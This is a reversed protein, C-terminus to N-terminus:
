VESMEVEVDKGCKQCTHVDTTRNKGTNGVSMKTKGGCHPCKIGNTRIDARKSLWQVLPKQGKHYADSNPYVNLAFLGAPHKYGKRTKEVAKEATKAKVFQTDTDSFFPAANSNTVIFFEQM